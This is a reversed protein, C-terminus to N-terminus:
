PSVVEEFLEARGRRADHERRARERRVIKPCRHRFARDEKKGFLLNPLEVRVDRLRESGGPAPFPQEAADVERAPESSSRWGRRRAAPLLRRLKLARPTCRTAKRESAYSRPAAAAAVAATANAVASRRTWCRM